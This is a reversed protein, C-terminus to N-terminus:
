TSEEDAPVTRVLTNLLATVADSDIRQRGEAVFRMDLLLQNHEATPLAATLRTALQRVRYVPREDHEALEKVAALLGEIACLRSPRNRLVM